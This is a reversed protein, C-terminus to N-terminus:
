RSFYVPINGSYFKVCISYFLTIFIGYTIIPSTNQIIHIHLPHLITSTTIFVLSFIKFASAYEKAASIFFPLKDLRSIVCVYILCIRFCLGDIFATTS